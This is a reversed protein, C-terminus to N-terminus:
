YMKSIVNNILSLDIFMFDDLIEDEVPKDSYTFKIATEISNEITKLSDLNLAKANEDIIITKYPTENPKVSGSLPHTLLEHGKHIYDRALYLMDRYSCYEFQVNYTDKYKEYVASNNTLIKIKM